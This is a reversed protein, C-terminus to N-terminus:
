HIQANSNKNNIPIFKPAFLQLICVSIIGFWTFVALLKGIQRAPTEQFYLKVNSDQEPIPILIAGNEDPQIEVPSGNVTAKWNPHYFTAIRVNESEGESIQFDRETPQWADIRAARNKASVKELNNLAEKRTWITWWFAFGRTNELTKITIETIDTPIYPAKNIIQTVSFTTFVFIVGAIVLALPRKKDRFWEIVLNFSNASLVAAAISIIALWRWPFQVEQLFQLRDWLFMSLPATLFLSVAFLLWVGTINSERKGKTWIALLLACFVVPLLTYFLTLDYFQTANKYITLSIEQTYIQFPTFLFHLTHNIWPDPYVSTKAMLDREELVKIWFFSSAALGLLVAAALKGIQLFRREREVLSLAYILFCISGIVTLPLHTLILAAFAAALGVIDILKGRKAVRYVLWFCFPLVASGVYESFFFTNYIQNLHYPMLAYFCGALVANRAAMLERAWLYVGLSGVISFFTITLWFAIHWDRVLFYVLALTYHSLPPYLRLEMGGFGLNRVASWSPYFDGTLFGEYFSYACQYHHTMDNGYPLGRFYIPLLVACSVAAIILLNFKESEIFKGFSDRM